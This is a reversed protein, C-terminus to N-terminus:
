NDKGKDDIGGPRDIRPIVVRIQNRKTQRTGCRYESNTQKREGDARGGCDVRPEQGITMQRPVLRRKTRHEM